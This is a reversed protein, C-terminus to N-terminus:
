RPAKLLKRYARWCRWKASTPSYALGHFVPEGPLGVLTVEWNYVDSYGGGDHRMIIGNHEIAWVVSRLYVSHTPESDNRVMPRDYM